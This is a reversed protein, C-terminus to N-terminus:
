SSKKLALLAQEILTNAVPAEVEVHVIEEAIVSKEAFYSERIISVKEQLEKPSNFEVDEILSKLKESQVASLDAVAEAIVKECSLANVEKSLTVSDQLSENLKSTLDEVKETLSEVLDEKGEPVEVYHESFVGKLSDIFSESVSQRLGSEIEVKNAEMWNEVVYNLYSDVKEVMEQKAVDVAESLNEEYQTELRELEETLKSTVAAEFIVSAKARFGESLSDESNVLADLAEKMDEEDEEEDEPEEDEVEAELEEVKKGEDLIEDATEELIEEALELDDQLQEEDKISM